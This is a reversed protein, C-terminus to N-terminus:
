PGGWCSVGVKLGVINTYGEEDLAVLADMTYKRGDNCAILLKTEPDPFRKKVQALARMCAAMHFSACALAAPPAAQLCAPGGGVCARGVVHMCAHVAHCICTTAILVHMRNTIIGREMLPLHLRLPMPLNCAHMNQSQAAAHHAYRCACCSRMHLPVQAVWDPNEEKQVVKKREEPSYVRKAHMWPINVCGRQKGVQAHTCM